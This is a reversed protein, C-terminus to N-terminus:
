LGLIGVFPREIGILAALLGLGSEALLARQYGFVFSLAWAAAIMVILAPGCFEVSRPVGRNGWEAVASSNAKLLVFSGAMRQWVGNRRASRPSASLGLRSAEVSRSPEADTVCRQGILLVKLFRSWSGRLGKLIAQLRSGDAIAM